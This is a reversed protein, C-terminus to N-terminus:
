NPPGGHTFAAAFRAFDQDLMGVVMVVAVAMMVVVVVAVAMRMIVLMIMVVLVMVPRHYGDDLGRGLGGGFRFVSRLVM